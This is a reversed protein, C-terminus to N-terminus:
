DLDADVHQHVAPLETDPWDSALRSLQHALKPATLQQHMTLRPLLLSDGGLMVRGNLFTYGTTYSAARVADRVRGDHHGYPYAFQNVETGLVETLRGRSRVLEEALPGDALCPLCAHTTGHAAIDVGNRVAEALEPWTMTRQSGPWWAPDRGMQDVVPLVTSPWGRAALEPVALHHVGVLADDFVVAVRGTLEEGNLLRESMERLSIVALRMRAVVALQQRFRSISVAYSFPAADDALIDHYALVIGGPVTNRRRATFIAAAAAARALAPLRSAGRTPTVAANPQDTNTM